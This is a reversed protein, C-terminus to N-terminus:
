EVIGIVDAQHMTILQEGNYKFQEKAYISFAVRDGPKVDMPELYGSEHLKGPGIALVTGQKAEEQSSKALMIGGATIEEPSDPRVIILDSLPKLM